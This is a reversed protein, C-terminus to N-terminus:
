RNEKEQYISLQCEDPIDVNGLMNIIIPYTPYVLTKVIKDLKTCKLSIINKGYWTQKYPCQNCFYIPDNNEIQRIMAQGM